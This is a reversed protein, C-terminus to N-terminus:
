LAGGTAAEVSGNSILRLRLKIKIFGDMIIETHKTNMPHM